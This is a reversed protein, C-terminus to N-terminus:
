ATVLAGMRESRLVSRVSSAHWQGGKATTVGDATLAEAIRRLSMGEGHMDRSRELLADPDETPDDKRELLEAYAPPTLDLLSSLPLMLARNTM